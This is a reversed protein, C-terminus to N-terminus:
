GWRTDIKLSQHIVFNVWGVCDSYFFGDKMTKGNYMQQRKSYLQGCNCYYVKDAYNEYFNNAFSAITNGAIQQETTKETALSVKSPFITVLLTILIMLKKYSNLM